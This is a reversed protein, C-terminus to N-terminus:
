RALRELKEMLMPLRAQSGTDGPLHGPLADIFRPDALFTRLCGGIYSRMEPASDTIEQELEPRGDIVCIVDELDHSM